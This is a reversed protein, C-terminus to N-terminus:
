RAVLFCKRPLVPPSVSLDLPPYYVLQLNPAEQCDNILRM